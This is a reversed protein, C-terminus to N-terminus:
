TCFFDHVFQKSIDTEPRAGLPEFEVTTDLKKLMNTFVEPGNQKLWSVCEPPAVENMRHLVMYQGSDSTLVFPQTHVAAGETSKNVPPTEIADVPLQQQPYTKTYWDTWEQLRKTLTEIHHTQSALQEYLLIHKANSPEKALQKKQLHKFLVEM